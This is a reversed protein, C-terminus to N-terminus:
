THYLELEKWCQELAEKRNENTYNLTYKLNAVGTTTNIEHFQMPPKGNTQIVIFLRCNLQKAMAMRAKNVSITPDFAEKIYKYKVEFIATFEIKDDIHKYEVFNEEERKLWLEQTVIVTMRDIDFMCIGSPLDYRHFNGFESGKGDYRPKTM